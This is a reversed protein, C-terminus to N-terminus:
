EEKKNAANTISSAFVFIYGNRRFVDNHPRKTEQVGMIDINEKNMYDIIEESKDAAGANTGGTWSGQLNLSAIKLKAKAKIAQDSSNPPRVEPCGSNIKNIQAKKYKNCHVLSHTTNSFNNRYAKPVLKDCGKRGDTGPSPTNLM